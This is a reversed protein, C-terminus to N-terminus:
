VSKPAISCFAQKIRRKIDRRILARANPQDAYVVNKWYHAFSQHNEFAEGYFHVFAPEAAKFWAPYNKRDLSPLKQALKETQTWWPHSREWAAFFPNQPQKNASRTRTTQKFRAEMRCRAVINLLRLAVVVERTQRSWMRKGKGSISAGVEVALGLQSVLEENDKVLDADRSLLGPWVWARRAFDRVDLENPHRKKVYSKPLHSLERRCYVDFETVSATLIGILLELPEKHGLQSLNLLEGFAHRAYWGIATLARSETRSQFASSLTQIAAYIELDSPISQPACALSPPTNM